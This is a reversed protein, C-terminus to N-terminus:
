IWEEEGLQLNDMNLDIFILLLEMMYVMNWGLLIAHGMLILFCITVRGEM